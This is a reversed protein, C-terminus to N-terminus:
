LKDIYKSLRQLFAKAQQERKAAATAQRPMVSVNRDAANDHIVTADPTVLGMGDPFTFFAFRAHNDFLNKSFPFEGHKYGLAALVTAAIDMQSGLMPMQKGRLSTPLAGGTMIMPIQYRWLQYNDINEPYVGLHDPVLVVLTHRWQETQKFADIFAGLCSDAYAFANLEKSALKHYQPVDFPEHSSETMMFRFAGAASRKGAAMKQGDGKRIDTLLRQYVPGDPVGWKCQRESAAFDKDSVIQQFGTAVLYSRMNSFNTDGGYYFATTYGQNALSSAMSPLHNSKHPTDMITSTPLAPTGSLIAVIARDTRFSNAYFNNFYLGERSLQELRPVVGKVHGAEEMIYRSFSELGIMLVDTGEPLLMPTGAMDTSDAPQATESATPQATESMLQTILRQEEADDMCHYREASDDRHNVSEIFCFVPNVAAHNLHMDESFYVSGTHITGTGFGGRIPIVMLAALVAVCAREKWTGSETPMKPMAKYILYTAVALAVMAAMLQWLTMSAMADKPSTTIYLLPTSDLPFGWYGYLGLNAIYALATLLAAVGFYGSWIRQGAKALARPLPCLLLLAPVATLYGAIAMDLRLVNWVVLVMQWLGADSMVNHYVALFAIKTIAGIITWTAFIRLLLLPRKM